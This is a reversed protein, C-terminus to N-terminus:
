SGLFILHCKLLSFGGIASGEFRPSFEGAPPACDMNLALIEDPTWVGGLPLKSPVLYLGRWVRAILGAKALRSFLKREQIASLQLPETLQGARVARLGRMQVYAFLRTEAQGLGKKMPANYVQL